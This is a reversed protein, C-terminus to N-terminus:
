SATPSGANLSLMCFSPAIGALLSFMVGSPKALFSRLSTSRQVGKIWAASAYISQVSFRSVMHVCGNVPRIGQLKVWLQGPACCWPLASAQQMTDAAISALAGAAMDFLLSYIARTCIAGGAPQPKQGSPPDSRLRTDKWRSSHAPLLGSARSWPRRGHQPSSRRDFQQVSNAFTLEIETPQM